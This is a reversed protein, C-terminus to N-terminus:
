IQGGNSDGTAADYYAEFVKDFKETIKTDKSIKEFFNLYNLVCKKNQEMQEKDNIFEYEKTSNCFTKGFHEISRIMETLSIINIAYTYSSIGLISSFIPIFIKNIFESIGSYSGFVVDYLKNYMYKHEENFKLYCTIGQFLSYSFCFSFYKGFSYEKQEGGIEKLLKQINEYYIIEKELKYINSSLKSEIGYKKTKKHVQKKESLENKLITIYEQLETEEKREM